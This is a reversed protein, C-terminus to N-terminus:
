RACGDHSSCAHLSSSAPHRFSCAGPQRLPGHPAHPAHPARPPSLRSHTLCIYGPEQASAAYVIFMISDSRLLTVLAPICRLDTWDMSTSKWCTHKGQKCAKYTRKMHMQPGNLGDIHEELLYAKYAHRTYAKIDMAAAAGGPLGLHITDSPTHHRFTYSIMETHAPILIHYTM